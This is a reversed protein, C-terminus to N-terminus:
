GADPLVIPQEAAGDSQHEFRLWIHSLELEADTPGSEAEQEMVALREYYDPMELLHALAIKGTIFPNDDTVNTRADRSGHELEVEMGRRLAELAIGENVLDVGIMDAVAEAQAATFHTRIMHAIM